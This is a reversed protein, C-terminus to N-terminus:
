GLSVLRGRNLKAEKFLGGSREAINLRSRM